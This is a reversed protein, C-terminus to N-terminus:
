ESVNLQIRETRNALDWATHFVLRTIKEMKSFIIKDVTDTEKHYDEHVGNFYFIVPINNKAFNYHDSRYYYRNPDKTTNFEYDLELQTYTANANENIEHLDNSLMNSGIIYVYNENDAHKKDLRGIMDINLNAVTNELPFVPYNTYYKSGLLGKEEGSVNLILISRRPGNGDKKAKVFAEAIEMIAVTGSGDDDAGNFIKGNHEGIHDYHASLIILEDKLDSGEIYALVNHADSITIKKNININLKNKVAFSQSIGKNNIKEKIKQSSKAIIEDAMESSIYFNPFDYDIEPKDLVKLKESEIFHTYTKIMEPTNENIILLALAGKEKATAVKPNNRKNSWKSPTDTNSVWYRESKNKPEGNLIIVVKGKVDLNSYDSYLSDDIGYGAFVVEANIQNNKLYTPFTYFDKNQLFTKDNYTISIGAADQLGVKYTQYYAIDKIPPIGIQKYFDSIYTAAKILSEKGTERGGYEDSAIIHLHKSLDAQTITAAYKLAISDQQAFSHHICFTFLMALAIIKKLM